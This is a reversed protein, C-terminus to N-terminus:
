RGRPLLAVLGDGLDVRRAGALDAGDAARNAYVTTGAADQVVVPHDLADLVLELRRRTTALAAQAAAHTLGSAVRDALARARRQAAVGPPPRDGRGGLGLLGLVPQEGSAIPVALWWGLGLREGTGGPARPVSPDHVVLQTDHAHMAAWTATGPRAPPLSRALWSTAAPDGAVHAAVRRLVGDHLVDVTVVDCLTGAVRAAFGDLGRGPWAADEGAPDGEVGDAAFALVVETGGGARERVDLSTALRGMTALGLGVGPSDPRFSMGRGDDLLRVLLRGPEAACRLSLTGPDRDVYAHLVANTAAETVAFAIDGVVEDGAGAAAAFARVHARLQGVSRPLAPLDLHAGSLVM